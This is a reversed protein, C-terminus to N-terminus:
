ESVGNESVQNNAHQRRYQIHAGFCGMKVTFEVQFSKIGWSYM